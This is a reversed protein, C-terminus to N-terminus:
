REDSSLPPQKRKTRPSTRTPAGGNMKTDGAAMIVRTPQATSYSQRAARKHHNRQPYNHLFLRLVSASSPSRSSPIRSLNSLDSYLARQHSSLRTRLLPLPPPPAVLVSHISRARAGIVWSM